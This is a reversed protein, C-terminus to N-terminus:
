ENGGLARRVEEVVVSRLDGSPAAASPGPPAERFLGAKKRLEICRERAGAPLAAPEGVGGRAIVLVKAYHEVLEMRLYATELDPGVTMVGNGRLLVVDAGALAAGAAPGAGSDKPVFLDVMPIRDGISVVVEPMAVPDIPRGVLAFASAHPPHAHIVARVDARARYAGVHLAVESPPRGRSVPTGDMRCEVITQSGCLRKSLGTPTIFFREADTARLSVNGDHNAVWGVEHLMGSYHAVERRMQAQSTM